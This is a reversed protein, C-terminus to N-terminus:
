NPHPVVSALATADFRRAPLPGSLDIGADAALADSQAPRALIIRCWRRLQTRDIPARLPIVRPSELRGLTTHSAFGYVIIAWEAGSRLLLSGIERIQDPQVTAYEFVVIDPDLGPAQALFQETDAFIGVLEIDEDDEADSALRQSLTSGLVAVRCPRDMAAGVAEMPAGKARKQLQEEDLNAVMGIADGRDVLYKIMTLRGVDDENYLRTGAGSRFPVVAGYRREWVRLTDPAVGTLRSVAGIRYTSETQQVSTTRM